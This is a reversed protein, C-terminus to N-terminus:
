CGNYNFGNIQLFDSYANKLLLCCGCRLQYIVADVVYWARVAMILPSWGNEDALNVDAGAALLTEVTSRDGREAASLLPIPHPAHKSTSAPFLRRADSM